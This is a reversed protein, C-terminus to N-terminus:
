RHEFGDAFLAGFEYAGLDWTHGNANAVAAVDVGRRNLDLDVAGRQDVDEIEHRDIAPSDSRLRFDGLDGLVFGPDAVAFTDVVDSPAVCPAVPLPTADHMVDAMRAENDPGLMCLVHRGPSIVISAELLFRRDGVLVSANELGAYVVTSRLITARAGAEALVVSDGGAGALLSEQVLVATESGSLRLVQAVRNDVVEAHSLQLVQLPPTPGQARMGILAGPTPHGASDQAFNDEIRACSRLPPAECRSPVGDGFDEVDFQVFSRASRSGDQLSRQMLAAGDSAANLALYAGLLRLDIRTSSAEPADIGADAFAYVGGGEREAVNGVIEARCDRAMRLRIDVEAGRAHVYLGGGDRSARNDSIVLSCGFGTGPTPSEIRTNLLYLGGGDGAEARNGAVTLLPQSEPILAANLLFAGGGIGARNSTFEVAGALRVPKPVEFAPGAAILGGGAVGRNAHFRVDELRLGGRGISHLGGGGDIADGGTIRLRHLQLEGSGVHRIVPAASGGSGDLQTAIGDESGHCLDFGGRLILAETDAVQLELASHIQSRTAVVMDPGPRLAAFDIAAQLSAFECQVGSGVFLPPNPNPDAHLPASVLLLLALADRVGGPQRCM